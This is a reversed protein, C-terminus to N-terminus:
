RLKGPCDGNNASPIGVFPVIGWSRRTTQSTCSTPLCGSLRIHECSSTAHTMRDTWTICPRGKYASHMSTGKAAWMARQPIAHCPMAHLSRRRRARPLWRVTRPARPAASTMRRRTRPAVSASGRGVDACLHPRPRSWHIRQGTGARCALVAGAKWM